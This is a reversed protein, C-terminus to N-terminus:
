GRRRYAAFAFAFAGFILVASSAEPVSAVYKVYLGDADQSFKASYVDAGNVFDNAVYDGNGLESLQAWSVIKLGKGENLTSDVLWSLDDSGFDFTVRASSGEARSITGGNEVIDTVTVVPNGSPSGDTTSLNQVTNTKTITQASLDISDYDTESALKLIIKGGSYILNSFRFAGFDFDTSAISGGTLVLNGHSLSITQSTGKLVYTNTITRNAYKDGIDATDMTSAFNLVLNGSNVEVGGTFVLTESSFTQWGGSGGNMVLKLKNENKATTTASENGVSGLCYSVWAERIAGSTKYFSTNKFVITGNKGAAGAGTLGVSGSMGGVELTTDHILGLYKGVVFSSVIGGIKGVSSADVAISSTGRVIGKETGVLNLDGTINLSKLSAVQMNPATMGASNLIAGLSSTGSIEVSGNVFLNASLIGSISATKDGSNIKLNTATSGAKGITFTTYGSEFSQGKLAFLRNVTPNIALSNLTINEQDVGMLVHYWVSGGITQTISADDASTPAVGGTWAFESWLFDPVYNIININGLSTKSGTLDVNISSAFASTALSLGSLAIVSVKLLKSINM